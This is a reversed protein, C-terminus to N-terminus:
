TQALIYPPHPQPGACLGDAPGGIRRKGLSFCSIHKQLTGIWNAAEGSGLLPEFWWERGRPPSQTPLPHQPTQVGQGLEEQCRPQSSAAVSLSSHCCGNRPSQEPSHDTKAVLPGRPLPPWCAAEDNTYCGGGRGFQAGSRGRATPLRAGRNWDGGEAWNLRM